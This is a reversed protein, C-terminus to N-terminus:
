RHALITRAVSHRNGSRGKWDLRLLVPLQRYDGSHDVSDIIGDGNLDRPMGLEPLDLDERLEVWAGTDFEPLVIRGVCGDPDDALPDLGPVAFNPGPSPGLAPDDGASTDFRKFITAFDAGGLNELQANMAQQALSTERNVENLRLSGALSQTIALFLIGLVAMAFMVELISFGGARGERPSDIGAPRRVPLNVSARGMSGM